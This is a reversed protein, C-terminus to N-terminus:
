VSGMSIVFNDLFLNINVNYKCDYIFKDIIEMKSIIDRTSNKEAIKKIDIDFCSYKVDRNLLYNLADFYLYYGCCLFERVCNKLNYFDINALLSVGKEELDVYIDFFNHVSKRVFDSYSVDDENDYLSTFISDYVNDNNILSIKQCRSVITSMVNIASDCLLIAIVNDEPEELFKLM